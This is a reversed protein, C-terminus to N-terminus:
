RKGGNGEIIAKKLIKEADKLKKLDEESLTNELSKAIQLVKLLVLTEEPKLNKKM